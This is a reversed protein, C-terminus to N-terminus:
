RVAFAEFGCRPALFFSRNLFDPGYWVVIATDKSNAVLDPNGDRNVDAPSLNDTGPATSDKFIMSFTKGDFAWLQSSTFIFFESVSDGTVDFSKLSFGAPLGHIAFERTFGNILKQSFAISSLLLVLLPAMLWRPNM